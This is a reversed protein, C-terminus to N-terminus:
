DRGAFAFSSLGFVWPPRAFEAESLLVAETHGGRFRYINWWGTRDSVFYLDGDPSWEPQCISEDAGGAVKRTEELTGDAGIWAVYLETGDWPMNPHDWCLWALSRGDPSLRPSSFFDRGGVLVDPPAGGALGIGVLSNAPEGGGSHDEQVWITRARALDIIGDAYRCSSGAALALPEGTGRVLYLRQDLYHAFCVMGGSVCFSGGGYEHVRTRANFEPPIVDRLAGDPAAAVIVNRGGECPRTEVWYITGGDLTIDSLKLAGAAVVDATIPSTWCGYPAQKPM